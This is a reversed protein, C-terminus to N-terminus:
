HKREGGQDQQNPSDSRRECGILGVNQHDPTVVDAHVVDAGVVVADHAVFGGVDVPNGFFARHESVGVGLLTTGGSARREDEALVGKAGTQQGDAHRARIMANRVPCRRDGAQELILAIRAALEALTYRSLYDIPDLTTGQHTLAMPLVGFSFSSYADERTDVIDIATTNDAEAPVFVYASPQPSDVAYSSPACGQLLLLLAGFTLLSLAQKKM